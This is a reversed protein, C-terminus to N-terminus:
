SAHVVLAVLMEWSWTLGALRLAMLMVCQTCAQGSLWQLGLGSGLRVFGHIIRVERACM